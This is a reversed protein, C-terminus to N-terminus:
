LLCVWCHLVRHLWRRGGNWEGHITTSIAKSVDLELKDVLYM